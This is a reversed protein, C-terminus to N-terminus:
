PIRLRKGTRAHCSLFENEEAFADIGKGDQRLALTYVIALSAGSRSLDGVGGESIPLTSPHGFAEISSSTIFDKREAKDGASFERQEPRDAVHFAPHDRNPDITNCFEKSCRSRATISEL